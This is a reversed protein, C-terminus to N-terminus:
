KVVLDNKVSVVGKVNRAISVAKTESQKSDVFGSLQVVGKMTEVNVQLVKLAPDDFIQAKVKTTITTDDVYQGTTERGSFMACAGFSLCLVCVAILYSISRLSKM